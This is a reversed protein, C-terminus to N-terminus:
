VLVEIMSIELGYTLAQSISLESLDSALSCRFRADAIVASGDVPTEHLPPFIPIDANGAADSDVDETVQYTKYRGEFRIFDGTRLVGSSSVPWGTTVVSSGAQDAGAIVPVGWMTGRAPHNPFIFYFAGLKGSQVNLFTWLEIIEDRELPPYILTFQWRQGGRSSVVRRLSQTVNAVNQVLSGISTTEPVPTTPLTSM